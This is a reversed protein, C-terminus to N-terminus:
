LACVGNSVVALRYKFPHGSAAVPEPVQWVVMEIFATDSLPLRYDFIPVSRVM